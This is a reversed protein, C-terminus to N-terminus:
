NGVNNDGMMQDVIATAETRSLGENEKMIKNTLEARKLTSDMKQIILDTRKSFSALDPATKFGGPKQYERLTAIAAGGVGGLGAGIGSGIAGGAAIGAPGGPLGMGGGVMGGVGGGAIAGKTAGDMVEGYSTQLEPALYDLDAKALADASITSNMTKLSNSAAQLKQEESMKPDNLVKKVFMLENRIKLADQADKDLKEDAAAYKKRGEKTNSAKVMQIVDKTVTQSHKADYRAAQAAQKEAFQANLAASRQMLDAQLKPMKATHIAKAYTKNIQELEALERADKLAYLDDSMKRKDAISINMGDIRKLEKEYKLRQNNSFEEMNRKLLMSGVNEGSGLMAQGIAGLGVSIAATIKDSESKSGWFTEPPQNSLKAYADDRKQIDEAIKALRIEQAKIEATAVAAKAEAKKEEHEAQVKDIGEQAKTQAALAMQQDEVAMGQAAMADRSAQSEVTTNTTNSTSGSKERVLPDVVPATLAGPTVVPLAEPVAAMEPGAMETPVLEAVPPGPAMPEPMNYLPNLTTNPEVINGYEDVTIEDM